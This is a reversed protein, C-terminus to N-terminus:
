VMSDFLFNSKTDGAKGEFHLHDREFISGLGCVVQGFVWSFIRGSMV